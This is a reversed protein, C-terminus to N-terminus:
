NDLEIMTSMNDHTSDIWIDENGRTEDTMVRIELDDTTPEPLNM